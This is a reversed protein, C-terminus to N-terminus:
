ISDSASHNPSSFSLEDSALNTFGSGLLDFPGRSRASDIEYARLSLAPMIIVPNVMIKQSM